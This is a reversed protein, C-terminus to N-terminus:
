IKKGELWYTKMMGKGKLLIEGRETLLYEDLLHQYVSESVQIRGPEGSSELRSAVNVTDGWLDYSFKTLGIVGAVVPGTNIGIRIQFVDNGIPQKIAQIQTQMELAIQAVAKIQERSEAESNASLGGVVMYADGITKIKELGSDKLLQDFTSFIRNLSDVLEIPSIQASLGTFGVIDAFLVTVQQFDRAIKSYGEQDKLEQAIAPPLINELLRESKEQAIKLNQNSVQLEQTREAIQRELERATRRVRNMVLTIGVIALLALGLMVWFTERLGRRVEQTVLGLPQIVELAGRIDGVQWDRKPSDPHSNHCNICSTQMIEPLAYHYERGNPTPVIEAYFPAEPYNRFHVLSRKEFDTLNGRNGYRGQFPENSYIHIRAGSSGSKIRDSLDLIFAIPLPLGSQELMSEPQEVMPIDTTPLDYVAQIHEVIDGYLGRAKQIAQAYLETNQRAQTLVLHESLRNINWLALVIGMMFLVTLALTIRQYLLSNLYKKVHRLM